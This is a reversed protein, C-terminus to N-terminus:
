ISDIDEGALLRTWAHLLTRTGIVDFMMRSSTVGILTLDDFVSVHVHVMPANSELFGYTSTPCTKSM